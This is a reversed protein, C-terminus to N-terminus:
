AIALFIYFIYERKPFLKRLCWGQLQAQSRGRQPLLFRSSIWPVQMIGFTAQKHVWPAGSSSPQHQLILSFIASFKKNNGCPSFLKRRRWTWNFYNGKKDTVFFTHQKGRRGGSIRYNQLSLCLPYHYFLWEPGDGPLYKLEQNGTFDFASVSTFALYYQTAGPRQHQLAM